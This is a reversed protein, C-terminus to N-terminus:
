NKTACVRRKSQSQSDRQRTRARRSFHGSNRPKTNRAARSTGRLSAIQQDLTAREWELADVKRNAEHLEREVRPSQSARDRFAERAGAQHQERVEELREIARVHAQEIRQRTERACIRDTRSCAAINRASRLSRRKARSFRIQEGRQRPRRLDRGQRFRIRRRPHRLSLAPFKRKLDRAQELDRVLVVGGLLHRVLPQLNSPRTRGQGIAWALAGAPLERTTEPGAHPLEPAISRPRASNKRRSLQRHDRDRARRRSARHRAPQPGAGSRDRSHIGRGSRHALRARRDLAPLIREPDDLGQLM